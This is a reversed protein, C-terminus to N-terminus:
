VKDNGNTVAKVMKSRIVEGTSVFSRTGPNRRMKFVAALCTFTGTSYEITCDETKAHELELQHDLNSSSINCIASPVVRGHTIHKEEYM